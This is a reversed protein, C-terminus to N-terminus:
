KARYRRLDWEPVEKYIIGEGHTYARRALYLHEPNCCLKNECTHLVFLEEPIWQDRDITWIVRHVAMRHGDVNFLGSGRAM